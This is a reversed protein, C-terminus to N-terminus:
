STDLATDFDYGAVDNMLGEISSFGSTRSSDNATEILVTSRVEVTVVNLGQALSDDDIVDCSICSQISM